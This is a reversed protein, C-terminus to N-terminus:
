DKLTKVLEETKKIQELTAAAYDLIKQELMPNFRKPSYVYTRIQHETYPLGKANTFGIEKLHDVLMKSYRTGFAQNIFQKNEPKM